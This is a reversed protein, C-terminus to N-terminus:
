TIIKIIQINDLFFFNATHIHVNKNVVKNLANLLNLHVKVMRRRKKVNENSNIEQMVEHSGTWKVCLKNKRALDQLLVKDGVHVTIILTQLNIM